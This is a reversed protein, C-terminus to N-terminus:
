KIKLYVRMKGENIAKIEEVEYGHYEYLDYKDPFCYVPVGLCLRQNGLYLSIKTDSNIIDLLNILKLETM